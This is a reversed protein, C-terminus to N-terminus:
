LDFAACLMHDLVYAHRRQEARPPFRSRSPGLWLELNAVANFPVVPTSMSTAAPVRCLTEIEPPVVRGIVMGRRVPELGFTATADVVGQGAVPLGGAVRLRSAERAALNSECRWCGTVHEKGDFRVRRFRHGTARGNQEGDESVVLSSVLAMARLTLAPAVAVALSSSKM